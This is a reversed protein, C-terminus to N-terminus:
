KKLERRVRFSRHIAAAGEPVFCAAATLVFSVCSIVIRSGIILSLGYTPMAFVIVLLHLLVAAWGEVSLGAATAVASLLFVLMSLVCWWRGFVCLTRVRRIGAYAMFAYLVLLYLLTAFFNTLLASENAAEGFFNLLIVSVTVTLFASLSLIVRLRSRDFFAM